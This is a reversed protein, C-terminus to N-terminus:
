NAHLDPMNAYLLPCQTCSVLVHIRWYADIFQMQKMMFIHFYEDSVITETSSDFSAKFLGQNHPTFIPGINVFKSPPNFWSASSCGVGPDAHGVYKINGREPDSKVKDTGKERSKM